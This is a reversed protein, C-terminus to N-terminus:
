SKRRSGFHSRRKEFFVDVFKTSGLVVGETFYRVRCRLADALPLRGRNKWVEQIEGPTFGGKRKDRGDVTDGGM